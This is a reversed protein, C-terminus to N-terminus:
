DIRNKLLTNRGHLKQLTNWFKKKDLGMQTTQDFWNMLNKDGENEVM